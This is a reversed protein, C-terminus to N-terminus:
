SKCKKPIGKDVEWFEGRKQYLLYPWIFVLIAGSIGAILSMLSKWFPQSQMLFVCINAIGIGGFILEMLGLFLLRLNRKEVTDTRKNNGVLKM